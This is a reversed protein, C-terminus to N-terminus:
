EIRGGVYGDDEVCQQVNVLPAIEGQGTLTPFPSLAMAMGDATIDM